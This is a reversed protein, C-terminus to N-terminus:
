QMIKIAYDVFTAAPWMLLRTLWAHGGIQPCMYENHWLFGGTKHFMLPVLRASYHQCISFAPM